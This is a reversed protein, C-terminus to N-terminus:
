QTKIVSSGVDDLVNLIGKATKEWSFEQARKKGSAALRDRHRRDSLVKYMAHAIEEIDCPDVLIGAKGAVEPLSTVKSAIVPTGSAMAELIPLGFGEYFSPYVFLSAMTYLAPLIKDSIYGTFIVDSNIGLRTATDLLNNHDPGAPGAVVLLHKIGYKHKLCSFATLLGKVNKHPRTAATYLIFDRNIGLEEEVLRSNDATHEYNLFAEDCAAHVVAVKWPPVGLHSIIQNRSSKSVTIIRQSRAASARLLAKLVRLEIGSFNEPWEFPILDHMTVVSQCALFLPCINGPSFLLDIGTTKVQFPFVLQEWLIKMPRCGASVPILYERFNNGLDFTGTNDKNTFLIYKNQRDISQLARVLNRLYREIGGGEGPAFFIANIGIKM